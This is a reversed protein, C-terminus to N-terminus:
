VHDKNKYNEIFWDILRRAITFGRPVPPLNNAEFWAAHELEETDIRLRGGAYEAIFGVMLSDPFPWHQSGFYRVNKVEINTEEKVERKVCEELTEGPEVFGALVSYFKTKFRRARALLIKNDKIVAVIMSPSLRPYNVLDCDPCVKARENQSDATESGCRGCYRTTRDWHVTQFAYGVVKFPEADMQYYLSRLDQFSM